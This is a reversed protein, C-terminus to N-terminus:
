NRVPKEIGYGKGDHFWKAAQGTLWLYYDPDLGRETGVFKGNGNLPTENEKKTKFIATGEDVEDFMAVYLAEAAARKAGAIQQWFFNGKDRPIQNYLTKDNKLNGWSFGPFVLPIYGIKNAKCWAIDAALNAGAVMPYTSANYRGVAWPMIVDATKILAHLAQDKETDNGFSRWYYPVGLLVSVKHDPGKIREILKHVDGTTYRRGDNFGVGWVAVLPRGNQRLYTPNQKNDFLSFEKQLEEWDRVIFEMDASTSGSLDYMISIARGYKKSAKLAHALVKNFHRKGSERKVESVFRQMYVGDIGYEQMWKFHLDVSEEDFSSYVRATKGSAYKFRTDYTNAYESVEPWFDISAFGPEFKGNKQYHHFGRGAADGEATFWGQYGAMVLGKYTKFLCGTEDYKILNDPQQAICSFSLGLAVLLKFFKMM